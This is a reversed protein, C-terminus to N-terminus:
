EAVGRITVVVKEEEAYVKRAKIRVVQKDDVWAAGNCGDLVSKIVNDIDPRKTPRIEGALMAAKARKSASAPIAFCQDIEVSLAEESPPEGAMAKKCAYWIRAEYNETKKDTYIHGTRTHRPRGKGIPKGEVEFCIKKM